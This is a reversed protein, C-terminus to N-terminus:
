ILVASMFCCLGSWLLIKFITYCSSGSIENCRYVDFPDIREHIRGIWIVKSGLQDGVTRHM